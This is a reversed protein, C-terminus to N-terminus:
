VNKCLKERIDRLAVDFVFLEPMSYCDRRTQRKDVIDKAFVLISDIDRSVKLTRLTKKFKNILVLEYGSDCKRIGLDDVPCYMMEM